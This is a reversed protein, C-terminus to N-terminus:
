NKEQLSKGAADIIYWKKEIKGVQPTYTKDM